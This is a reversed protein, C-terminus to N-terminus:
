TASIGHVETEEELVRPDYTHMMVSLKHSYFEPHRACGICALGLSVRAGSFFNTLRKLTVRVSASHEHQISKCSHRGHARCRREASEGTHPQSQFALEPGTGLASVASSALKVTAHSTM